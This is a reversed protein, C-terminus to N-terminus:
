SAFVNDRQIFNAQTKYTISGIPYPVADFFIEWCAALDKIIEVARFVEVIKSFIMKSFRRFGILPYLLGLNSEKVVIGCM